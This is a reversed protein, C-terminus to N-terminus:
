RVSKLCDPVPWTKVDEIKRPDCELGNRGVVHGLFPVSTQFLHCKTSKLQLGYSRLREFIMTLNDLSDDFTTRFSIPPNDGTDITHEVADTHGTLASGPIPFLDVFELLTNALQSKHLNDLDCSARELLGQLHEPLTLPDCSPHPLQGMTPQIASVQAIMGIESFPEVMVTEQVLNSVLVPNSVNSRVYKASCCDGRYSSRNRGTRRLQDSTFHKEHPFVPWLTVRQGVNSM